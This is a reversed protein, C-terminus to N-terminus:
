SSPSPSVAGGRAEDFTTVFECEENWTPYCTVHEHAERAQRADRRREARRGSWGGAPLGVAKKVVVTLVRAGM